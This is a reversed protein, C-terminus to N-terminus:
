GALDLAVIIQGVILWTLAVGLITLTELRRHLRVSSAVRKAEMSWEPYSRRGYRRVGTLCVWVAAVVVAAFTLLEGPGEEGSLALSIGILGILLAVGGAVAQFLGSLAMAAQRSFRTWSVQLDRDLVSQGLRVLFEERLTEMDPAAGDAARWARRFRALVVAIMVMGPLLWPITVYRYGTPPADLGHYPPVLGAVGLAVLAPGLFALVLAVPGVGVGSAADPDVWPLPKM